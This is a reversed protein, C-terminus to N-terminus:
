CTSDPPVSPVDSVGPVVASVGSVVASVGSVVASTGPVVATAEIEVKARAEM